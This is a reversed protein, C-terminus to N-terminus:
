PSKHDTIKSTVTTIAAMYLLLRLKLHQMHESKEVSPGNGCREGEGQAERNRLVCHTSILSILLGVTAELHELSLFLGADEM